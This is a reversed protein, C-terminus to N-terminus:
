APLRPTILPEAAIAGTVARIAGEVDAITLAGLDGRGKLREAVTELAVAALRAVVVAYVDDRPRGLRTAVAAELDSRERRFDDLVLARATPTSEVIARIRRHRESTERALSLFDLMAQGLSEAVPEDVPRAAFAAILHGRLALPETLLTEKTPFYRYLTSASVEAREAIEEMTAADFGREEFLALAADLIAERTRAAKRERLGSM